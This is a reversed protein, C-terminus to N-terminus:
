AVNQAAAHLGFLHFRDGKFLFETNHLIVQCKLIHSEFITQAYFVLDVLICEILRYRRHHQLRQYFVRDLM